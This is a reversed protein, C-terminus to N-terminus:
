ALVEMIEALATPDGRILSADIEQIPSSGDWNATALKILDFVFKKTGGVDSIEVVSAPHHETELYAFRGDAGGIQGEQGVTFGAAVARDHLEQFSDNWYAIHQVRAHGADLFDRYM